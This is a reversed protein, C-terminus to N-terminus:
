STQTISLKTPPECQNSFRWLVEETFTPLHGLFNQINSLAQQSKLETPVVNLEVTGILKQYGELALLQEGLSHLKIFNIFINPDKPVKIIDDYQDTYNRHKDVLEFWPVLPEIKSSKKFIIGRLQGFDDRESLRFELASWLDKYKQSMRKKTKRLRNLPGTNLGGWVCMLGNFNNVELFKLALKTFRSFMKARDNIDITQVIESAVWQSLLVSRQLMRSWNPRPSHIDFFESRSIEMLNKFDLITWQEAILDVPLDSFGFKGPQLVPLREFKTSSYDFLLLSPPPLPKTAGAIKSTLLKRHERSIKQM